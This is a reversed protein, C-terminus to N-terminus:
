PVELDVDVRKGEEITVEKEVPAARPIELRVRVEGAALNAFYSSGNRLDTWHSALRAHGDRIELRAAASRERQEQSPERSEWESGALRESRVRVWLQGAPVAEIDLVLTREGEGVVIELPRSPAFFPEGRFRYTELGVRYRGSRFGTAEYSGDKGVRARPGDIRGNERFQVVVDELERGPARVVGRVRAGRDLPVAISENPVNPVLEIGPHEAEVFGEAAVRLTWTGPPAEVRFRGPSTKEGWITLHAASLSARFDILPAGTEGETVAGELAVRVEEKGPGAPLRLVVSVADSGVGRAMARVPQSRVGSAKPEAWFAVLNYPGDPLDGAEFSGDERSEANGYRRLAPLGAQRYGYLLSPTTVDEPPLAPDLVFVTAGKAPTGDAFLVKGSVRRPPGLVVRVEPPAEGSPLFEPTAAPSFGRARVVLSIPRRSEREWEPFYLRVRGSEDTMTKQRILGPFLGEVQAGWVPAGATDLVLLDAGLDTQLRIDPAETEEGARLPVEVEAGSTSGEMTAKIRVTAPLRTAQVDEIAYRGEADTEAGPNSVGEFLSPFWPRMREMSYAWVKVGSAPAGSADVVRGRVAAAPWLRISAEWTGGDPVLVVEEAAPAFGPAKAGVYGVLQGRKGWSHSASPHFGESPLHSFTFSGDESSISEGLSRQGWPNSLSLAGSALGHMGEISWLFVRAGAIPSGTEADLVRGRLTAGRVVVLDFPSEPGADSLTMPREIMLPAFGEARVEMWWNEGFPAEKASRRSPLGDLRYRGDSGSSVDLEVRAPGMLALWRVLAGPVPHGGRDLVTGELIRSADLTVAREDGPLVAGVAAPSLGKAEVFLGFRPARGALAVQFRGDRDTEAASLPESGPAVDAPRVARSITEPYSVVRAGPIPHGSPDLVVGQAFAGAVPAARREGSTTASPSSEQRQGEVSAAVLGAPASGSGAAVTGAEGIPRSPASGKPWLAFGLALLLAAAAALKASVKMSIAGTVAAIPGSGGRFALRGLALCWARRDENWAKDLHERLREIARKLRTRVTEVPVGLKRAIARPPLEEYFRLLIATRYPEELALVAELVRRRALEREVIEETSPGAESRAVAEERRARRVDDRASRRAFNRLVKALWSRPAEGHRPPHELAALFTEQAVDDARLADRVLSRALSRVFGGHELLWRPDTPPPPVDEPLLIGPRDFGTWARCGPASADGRAPRLLV